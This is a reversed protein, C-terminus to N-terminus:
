ARGDWVRMRSVIEDLRMSVLKEPDGSLNALALAESKLEPLVFGLRLDVRTASESIPTLAVSWELYGPESAANVTAIALRRPPEWVQAMRDAQREGNVVAKIRAGPRPQDIWSFDYSMPPPAGTDFWRKWAKPESFQRWALAAGMPVDFSRELQVM